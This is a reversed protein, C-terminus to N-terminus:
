DLFVVNRTFPAERETNMAVRHWDDLVVTKHAGHWVRGKV